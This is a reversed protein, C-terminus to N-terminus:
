RTSSLPASPPKPLAASSPGLADVFATGSVEHSIAERREYRSQPDIGSSSSKTAAAAPSSAVFSCIAACARRMSFPSLARAATSM